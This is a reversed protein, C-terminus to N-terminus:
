VIMELEILQGLDSVKSDMANEIVVNLEEGQLGESTLEEIVLEKVKLQQEENLQNVYLNKM